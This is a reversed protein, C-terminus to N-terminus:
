IISWFLPPENIYINKSKHEFKIKLDSHAYTQNMFIRHMFFFFFSAQTPELFGMQLKCRHELDWILKFSVAGAKCASSEGM